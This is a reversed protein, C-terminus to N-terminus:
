NSNILENINNKELPLVSVVRLLFFGFFLLSLGFPPADRKTIGLQGAFSLPKTKKEAQTSTSKIKYM